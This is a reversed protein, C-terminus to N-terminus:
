SEMGSPANPLTLLYRDDLTLDRDRLQMAIEPAVCFTLGRELAHRVGAECKDLLSRQDSILRKVSDVRYNRYPPLTLYFLVRRARSRRNGRRRARLSVGSHVEVNTTKTSLASVWVFETAVRVRWSEKQVAFRRFPWRRFPPADGIVREYYKDAKTRM